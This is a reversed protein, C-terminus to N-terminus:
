QNLLHRFNYPVYTNGDWREGNNMSEVKRRFYEDRDVYDIGDLTWGDEDLMGLVNDTDNRYFWDTVEDDVYLTVVKNFFSSLLMDLETEQNETFEVDTTFNGSHVDTLFKLLVTIRDSM